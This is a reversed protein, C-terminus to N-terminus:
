DGLQRLLDDLDPAPHSAVAISQLLEESTLGEIVRSQAELIAVDADSADCGQAARKAIRERLVFEPADLALITCPVGLERALALFPARQCRRLFTADVLVGCGGELISRSLDLLRAYTRETAEPAYIGTQAAVVIRTEPDLGFLRKREIDSRIHIVRLRERLIKALHTKGSSSRGHTLVLRCPHYRTYDEALALYRALEDRYHPIENVDLGAQTLRIGTVKARVTARYVRYFDLLAVADYDGVRELYRNLFRRGLDPRGGEALDMALFAVENITDIWRLAPDFEIGDFIILRGREEAINGRHLDGHCERVRGGLRRREILPALAEFRELTWARMAALRPGERVGIDGAELVTLNELMPALVGAMTGFGSEPTAAPIAHHFAAIRDAIRDVLDPTVRRRDLLAKQRFRRMKVAWELTEGSGTADMRPAAPTGGIRVVSLYTDPALRRNLRLEEECFYHRRERTSYDLFGLNVPKKLKYAFDGVLFVHSAHTEIHAFRETPHEYATPSMLGAIMQAYDSLVM